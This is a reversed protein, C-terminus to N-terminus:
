QPAVWKQLMVFCWDCGNFWDQSETHMLSLSQDLLYGDECVDKDISIILPNIELDKM